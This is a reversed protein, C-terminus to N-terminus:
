VEMEEVILVKWGCKKILKTLLSKGLLSFFFRAAVCDHSVGLSINEHQCCGRATGRVVHCGCQWVCVMCVCNRVCSFVCICILQGVSSAELELYLNTYVIRSHTHRHTHTRTTSTCQVNNTTCQANNNSKNEKHKEFLTKKFKRTGRVFMNKKELLDALYEYIWLFLLWLVSAAATHKHTHTANKEASIVCKM